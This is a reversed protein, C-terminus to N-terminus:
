LAEVPPTVREAHALVGQLGEHLVGTSRSSVHHEARAAVVVGVERAHGHEGLLHDNGHAGVARQDFLANMVGALRYSLVEDSRRCWGAPVTAM